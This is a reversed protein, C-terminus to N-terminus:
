RLTPWSTFIGSSSCGSSSPSGSGAAWAAAAAEAADVCAIGDEVTGDAIATLVTGTSPNVVEIRGRAQGEVWSSGILLDTPIDFPAEHEGAAPAAYTNLSEM